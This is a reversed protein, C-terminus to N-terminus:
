DAPAACGDVVQIKENAPVRMFWVAEVTTTADGGGHVAGPPRYFYGGPAYQFTAVEGAVCESEVVSGSLLYGELSQSSYQWSQIAGPNIKLLWTRAGSGPDSRLEKISLGDSGFDFVPQEWDILGANTILPTRIVAKENASDLFYLITAGNDSRLPLGTSGPPIYAYGGSTLAYEGVNVEGDIVFIEVSLGPSAGSSFEWDSPIKIRAGSRRTRTDGTLLKARVGPLGAVFSDPLEDVVIFAPFPVAPPGSACGSAVMMLAVVIPLLSRVFETKMNFGYVISGM